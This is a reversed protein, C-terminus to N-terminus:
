QFLESLNDPKIRLVGEESYNEIDEKSPTGGTVIQAGLHKIRVVVWHKPMKGLWEVNSDKMGVKPDLGKTVAHNILAAREEKLLVIM